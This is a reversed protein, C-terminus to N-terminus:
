IGTCVKKGEAGSADLATMPITTYVPDFKWILLKSCIAKCKTADPEKASHAYCTSTDCKTKDAYDIYSSSIFAGTSGDVALWEKIKNKLANYASM